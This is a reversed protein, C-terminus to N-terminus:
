SYAESYIWGGGASMAPATTHALLAVTMHQHVHVIQMAGERVDSAGASSPAIEGETARM